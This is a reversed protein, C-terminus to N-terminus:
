RESPCWTLGDHYVFLPFRAESSDARKDPWAAARNWPSPIRGQAFTTVRDHSGRPFSGRCPGALLRHHLSRRPRARQTLTAFGGCRMCGFIGGVFRLGARAETSAHSPHIEEAWRPFIFASLLDEPRVARAPLSAAECRSTGDRRARRKIPREDVTKPENKNRESWDGPPKAPPELTVKPPADRPSGIEGLCWPVRAHYRELYNEMTIGIKELSRMAAPCTQVVAPTLKVFISQGGRRIVWSGLSPTAHVLYEDVLHKWLTGRHQFGYEQPDLRSWADRLDLDARAAHCSSVQPAPWLLTGHLIPVLLDPNVQVTIARMVRQRAYGQPSQNDFSAKRIRRLYREWRLPDAAQIASQMRTRCARTHRDSMRGVRDSARDVCAPCGATYGYVRFDSRSLYFSMRPVRKRARSAADGAPSGSACLSLTTDPAPAIDAQIVIASAEQEFNPWEPAAPPSKRLTSQPSQETEAVHKGAARTRRQATGSVPSPM